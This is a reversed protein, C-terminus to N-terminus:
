PLGVSKIPKLVVEGKGWPRSESHYIPRVAPIYIMDKELEISWLEAGFDPYRVFPNAVYGTVEKRPHISLVFVEEDGDEISVIGSIVGPVLRDGNAAQFFVEANRRSQNKTTFVRGGIIIRKHQQAKRPEGKPIEPLVRSVRNFTDRFAAEYEKTPLSIQKGADLQKIECNGLNNIEGITGTRRNQDWKRELLPVAVKLIAPCRESQLLAKLNAGACFTKLM